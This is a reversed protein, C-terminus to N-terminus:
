ASGGKARAVERLFKGHAQFHLNFRWCKEGRTVLYTTQRGSGIAVLQVGACTKLVKRPLPAATQSGSPTSNERSEPKM